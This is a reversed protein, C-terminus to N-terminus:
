FSPALSPSVLAELAVVPLVHFRDSLLATSNPSPPDHTPYVM